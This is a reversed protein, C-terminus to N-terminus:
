EQEELELKKLREIEKELEDRLQELRDKIRNLQEFFFEIKFTLFNNKPWYNDSLAPMRGALKFIPFRNFEIPYYLSKTIELFIEFLRGYGGFQLSSELRLVSDSLFKDTCDERLLFSAMQENVAGVLLVAESSQVLRKDRSLLDFVSKQANLVEHKYLGNIKKIESIIYDEYARKEAFVQWVLSLLFGFFSSLSLVYFFQEGNLNEDRTIFAKLIVLSALLFIFFFVSRYFTKEM